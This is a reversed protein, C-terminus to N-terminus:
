REDWSMDLSNVVEVRMSYTGSATIPTLDWTFHDFPPVTNEVLLVGNQYLRAATLPRSYGDPFEVVFSLEQSEPTLALDKSGEPVSWTREVQAPPSLFIPNPANLTLSYGMTREAASGDALNVTISHDGSTKVSSLFQVEYSKRLPALWTELDPMTEPAAVLTMRGGTSDALAQLASTDPQDGELSTVPVWVFVRVGAQQARASLEQLGALQAEPVPPTIFLIARKMLPNVAQDSALDLATSLSFLNVDTRQPDVQLKALAAAWEQPVRSRIVQLGTNASLSFDLGSQANQKRAWNTLAARVGEIQPRGGINVALQPGTTIAVSFQIGPEIVELSAVDVAQDDETLIIDDPTLGDIFNGQSDYAELNFHIAPFNDTDLGGVVLHTSDQSYVPVTLGALLLWASLILFGARFRGIKRRAAAPGGPHRGSIQNM